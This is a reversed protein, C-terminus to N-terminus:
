CSEIKRRHRYERSRDIRKTLCFAEVRLRWMLKGTNLNQNGLCHGIKFYGHLVLTSKVSFQYLGKDDEVDHNCYAEM